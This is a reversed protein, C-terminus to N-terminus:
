LFRKWSTQRENPDRRQVNAARFQALEALLEARAEEPTRASLEDTRFEWQEMEVNSAEPSAKIDERKHPQKPHFEPNKRRVRRGEVVGGSQKLATYSTTESWEEV